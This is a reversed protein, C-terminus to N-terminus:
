FAGPIRVVVALSTEFYTGTAFPNRLSSKQSLLGLPGRRSSNCGEETYVTLNQDKQHKQNRQHKQRFADKFADKFADNFADKFADKFAEAQICRRTHM